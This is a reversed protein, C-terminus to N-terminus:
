SLKDKLLQIVTKADAQGRTATMVKGVLVQLANQKGSKYDAAAKENERIVQDILGILKGSDTIKQMSSKKLMAIIKQHDAGALKVGKNVIHSVVTEYPVGMKNGLKLLVELEDAKEKESTLIDLYHEAIGYQSAFRSIRQQPLEPIQTKISALYSDSFELPPLDPEPFYRYDKAEEKSRQSFTEDRTEDYGRTEQDVKGGSALIVTHRKIEQDIAKELFRFSNINKLEVKYNPLKKVKSKENEVRAVSVNAELRMSGKEMDCDSIDLYRVIKRLTQAFSKAHLASVIEPETVIEVLPVGSRNFDILTVKKANVKKHKLKGTDEELHVRTIGVKGEPTNLWGKKCL